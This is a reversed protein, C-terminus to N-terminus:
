NECILRLIADWVVDVCRNEMYASQKMKEKCIKPGTTQENNPACSNKEPTVAVLPLKGKTDM